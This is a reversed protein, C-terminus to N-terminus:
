LDGEMEDFVIFKGNFWNDLEPRDFLIDSLLDDVYEEFNNVTNGYENVSHLPQHKLLEKLRKNAFYRGLELRRSLIDGITEALEFEQASVPHLELKTPQM